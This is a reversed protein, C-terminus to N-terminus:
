YENKKAMGVALGFIIFAPLGSMMIMIVQPHGEEPPAGGVEVMLHNQPVYFMQYPDRYLSKIESESLARNWVRFLEVYGDLASSSSYRSGIYLDDAGTGLDGDTYNNVLNGNIYLLNAGWVLVVQYWQGAEYEYRHSGRLTGGTYIDTDGDSAKYLLFRKNNGGYTDWFYHNSGDDYDWNPRLWIEVTGASQNFLKAFDECFVQSGDNGSNLVAFGYQGGNWTIDSCAGSYYGVVDYVTDGNGENFLWCALMDQLLPHGRNLMMMGRVPKLKGAFCASAFLTFILIKRLM